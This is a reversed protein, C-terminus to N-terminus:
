PVIIIRESRRDSNILVGKLNSIQLYWNKTWSQVIASRFTDSHMHFCIQLPDSTV